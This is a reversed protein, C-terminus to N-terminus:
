GYRKERREGTTDVNVRVNVNVTGSDHLSEM